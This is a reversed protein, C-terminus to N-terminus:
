VVTASASLAQSGGPIAQRRVRPPRPLVSHLAVGALLRASLVGLTRGQDDHVRGPEGERQFHITVYNNEAVAYVIEELQLQLATEKSTETQISILRTTPPKEEVPKIVSQALKQNDAGGTAKEAVGSAVVVGGGSNPWCM